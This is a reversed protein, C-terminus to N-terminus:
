RNIIITKTTKSHIPRNPSAKGGERVNNQNKFLLHLLPLLLTLPRGSCLPRSLIPPHNPCTQPSDPGLRRLPRASAGESEAAAAQTRSTSERSEHPQTKGRKERKCVAKRSGQEQRGQGGEETEEGRRGERSKDKQTVGPPSSLPQGSAARGAPEREGAETRLIGQRRPSGLNPLFFALSSRPKKKKKKTM